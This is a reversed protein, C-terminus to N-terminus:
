DACVLNTPRGSQPGRGASRQQKRADTRLMRNMRGGNEFVAISTFRKTDAMPARTIATRRSVPHADEAGYASLVAEGTGVTLAGAGAGAGDIPLAAVAVPGFTGTYPLGSPAIIEVRRLGCACPAGSVKKTTVVWPVHICTCTGCRGFPPV